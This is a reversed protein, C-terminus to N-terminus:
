LAGLVGIVIALSGVLWGSKHLDADLATMLLLATAGQLLFIGVLFKIFATLSFSVM